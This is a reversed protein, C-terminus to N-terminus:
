SKDSSAISCLSRRAHSLFACPLSWTSSCTCLSHCDKASSRPSRNFSARHRAEEFQDFTIHNTCWERMMCVSAHMDNTSIYTNHIHWSMPMNRCRFCFTHRGPDTKLTWIDELNIPRFMKSIKAETQVRSHARVCTFWTYNRMLRQVVGQLLKFRIKSAM